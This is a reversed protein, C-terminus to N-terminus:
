INFAFIFMSLLILYGSFYFYNAKKVIKLMLKISIIGFVFAFVFAVLTPLVAINTIEKTHFIIEYLMSGIVVPISMIFSFSAVEDKNKGSLLGASITAGSRSIGPFVAMGQSFGMLLATKSDIPKDSKKKAFIQVIALLIATIIFFISLYSGNFSKELFSKFIFVLIITPIMSLYILVAKKGFPKKIIEWIEKYYIAVIAFLTALHLIITTFMFEEQINFIRNLLVLHGSSSVPLFETLGQVIGLIIAYLYSM